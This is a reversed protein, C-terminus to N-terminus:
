DNVNGDGVKEQLSSLLDEIVQWEEETEIKGLSLDKSSPDYTNAYVKINGTNDLTNDTFVIYSKKFEESDFTFLAECELEEGKENTIIFKGKNEDM